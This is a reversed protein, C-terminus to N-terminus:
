KKDAEIAITLRLDDGVAGIMTTMGFDSRKIDLEGTFGVLLKSEDMMNKGSGVLEFVAKVPKKVGHLDLDGKVEYRDGAVQISTSTFKITPFQAANLFDPSRLHDDRKKEATFISAPDLELEVKSKTLDGDIVISGTMKNFRGFLHSVNMHKVKFIVTSHAPDVDYSGAIAVLKGDGAGPASVTHDSSKATEVPRPPPSEEQKKCANTGLSLAVAVGLSRRNFMRRVM